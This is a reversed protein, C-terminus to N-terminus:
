AMSVSVDIHSPVGHGEQSNSQSSISSIAGCGVDTSKTQRSCDALYRGWRLVRPDPIWRAILLYRFNRYLADAFPALECVCVILFEGGAAHYGQRARGRSCLFRSSVGMDMLRGRRRAPVAGSHTVDSLANASTAQPPPPDEAPESAATLLVSEPLATVCAPGTLLVGTIVQSLAPIPLTERTDSRGVNGVVLGGFLEAAVIVDTEV